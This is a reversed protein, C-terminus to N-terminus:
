APAFVQINGGTLNGVYYYLSPNNMWFDVRDSEAANKGQGGDWFMVEFYYWGTGNISLHGYLYVDEGVIPSYTGEFIGHFNTQTTHNILEFQGSATGPVGDIKAQFGVSIDQDGISGYHPYPSGGSPESMFWGGGTAKTPVGSALAPAASLALVAIVVLAVAFLRVKMEIKRREEQSNQNSVKKGIAAFTNL